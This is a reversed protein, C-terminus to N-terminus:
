TYNQVEARFRFGNFAWVGKCAHVYVASSMGGVDLVCGSRLCRRCLCVSESQVDSRRSHHPAKQLRNQWQELCSSHLQSHLFTHMGSHTHTHTISARSSRDSLISCVSGAEWSLASMCYIYTIANLINVPTHPCFWRIEWLELNTKVLIFVQLQLKGRCWLKGCNCSILKM